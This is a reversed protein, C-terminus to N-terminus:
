SLAARPDADVRRAITIGAAAAEEIMAEEARELTLLQQDIENLRADREQRPLGPLRTSLERQIADLRAARIMPRLTVFLEAVDLKPWAIPDSPYLHMGVNFQRHGAMHDLCADLDAVAEELPVPADAIARAEVKLEAIRHRITDLETRTSGILGKLKEVLSM